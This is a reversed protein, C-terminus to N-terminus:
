SGVVDNEKEGLAEALTKRARHLSTKITGETVGLLGAVDAVAHGLYYHLVVAERQRRPLDELARALDLAEDASGGPVASAELRDKARREALVRRWRSRALNMSVTTVWAAISEIHEGRESREWARALAEQVADEGAARSGCALGVAAVLRPYETMLFTRIAPEDL